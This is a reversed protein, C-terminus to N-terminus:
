DSSRSKKDSVKQWEESCTCDRRVQGPHHSSRIRITPSRIRIENRWVMSHEEKVHVMNSIGPWVLAFENMHSPFPVWTASPHGDMPWGLYALLHSLSTSFNASFFIFDLDGSARWFALTCLYVDWMRVDLLGIIRQDGGKAQWPGFIRNHWVRQRWGFDSAGEKYIYAWAHLWWYVAVFALASSQSSSLDQM